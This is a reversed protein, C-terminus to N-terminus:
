KGVVTKSTNLCRAPIPRKSKSGKTDAFTHRRTHKDTARQRESSLWSIDVDSIMSSDILNNFQTLLLTFQYM